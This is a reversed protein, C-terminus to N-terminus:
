SPTTPNDQTQQATLGRITQETEISNRTPLIGITLIVQEASWEWHVIQAVVTDVFTGFGRFGVVKGPRLLTIDLSTTHAITITTQFQEVSEAAIASNGIADATAGITVRNDSKLDLLPGFQAISPGSQYIKYLNVGGGTDGGSFVVTNKMNETTTVLKLANIHVGKVFLFEATTSANKFYITQTGLDVYYYFGSPALSLIAQLADNVTQVKFTYTLSLGTADITSATWGINGGRLLYDTIIPALMGTSPDQATYTATTSNTGSATSFYLDGTMTGFGGGGGGGYSSNYMSGGSYVDTNQYYLNITGGGTVDVSFFYQKGAVAGLLAPFAFQIASPNIVNVDIDVEGLFNGGNPADYLKVIVTATGALLLTIAGTNTVGAGVTFTQGYINWNGGKGGSFNNLVTVFGNQTAQSQDVAYSFPAGRAFYNDMDYGTSYLVVAISDSDNGFDAEWRRIVGVYMCKGNPYFYNYHWAQVINGNKILSDIGQFAASVLPIATTAVYPSTGDEATYIDSLDELTYTDTPQNSTDSSVPVNVTIQSGLTNIDQAIKLPNTPTPLIGLFSGQHNYVKYIERTPVDAPAVAGGLRYYITIKIADVTATSTGTNINTSISAGFLADNIDSALWAKGWLSTPGGYTQWTLVGSHFWNQGTNPSNAPTTAGGNFLLWIDNTDNSGAGSNVKIDLQIGEIIANTPLGFAFNTGQLQSAAGGGGGPGIVGSTAVVGDEVKANNVNTWNVGGSANAMTGPIAVRSVSM